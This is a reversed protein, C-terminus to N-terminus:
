FLSSTAIWTSFMSKKQQGSHTEAAHAPINGHARHIGNRKPQLFGTEVPLAVSHFITRSELGNRICFDLTEETPLSISWGYKEHRFGYRELNQWQKKLKKNHYVYGNSTDKIDHQMNWIHSCEHILTTVVEEINRRLYNASINLEKM